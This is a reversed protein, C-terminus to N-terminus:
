GTPEGQRSEISESARGPQESVDQEDCQHLVLAFQAGDCRALREDTRRAQPTACAILALRPWVGRRSLPAAALGTM